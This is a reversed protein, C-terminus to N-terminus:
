LETEGRFSTAVPGTMSLTGHPTEAIVLDGGPLRVTASADVLGRRRAAAFTACAGSGCALTLGAGREWVRLRVLGRNVVTAVNVNVREPFVPDHEIEPGLAELPVADADAVFFIVHPNGMNVASPRELEGWALPMDGTDMAYALPIDSWGFRPAGMDITVGDKAAAATLLGGRTEITAAGGLLHAVCRTANGCAGSESGDPNFIRMFVDAKDSPELVILQDCGIGRHRDALRRVREPPMALALHRADFIAFDNGAGHMKLFATAMPGADIPALGRKCHLGCKQQMAAPAATIRAAKLLNPGFPRVVRFGSV